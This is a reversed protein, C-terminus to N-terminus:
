RRLANAEARTKRLETFSIDRSYFLIYTLQFKAIDYHVCLNLAYTAPFKSVIFSLFLSGGKYFFSLVNEIM